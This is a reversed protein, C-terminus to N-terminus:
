IKIFLEPHMTASEALDLWGDYDEATGEAIDLNM